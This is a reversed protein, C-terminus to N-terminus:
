CPRSFSIVPFESFYKLFEGIEYLLIGICTSIKFDRRQKKNWKITIGNVGSIYIPVVPLPVHPVFLPFEETIIGDKLLTLYKLSSESNYDFNLNPFDIGLDQNTNNNKVYKIPSLNHIRNSNLDTIVASDYRNPLKETWKIHLHSEQAEYIYDNRYDQSYKPIQFTRDRFYCTDSPDLSKIKFGKDHDITISVTMKVSLSEHTEALIFSNPNDSDGLRAFNYHDHHTEIMYPQNM